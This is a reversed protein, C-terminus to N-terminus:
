SEIFTDTENDRIAVFGGSTDAAYETAFDRANQLTRFRAVPRAVLEPEGDRSLWLVSYRKDYDATKTPM